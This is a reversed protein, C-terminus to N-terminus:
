FTLTYLRDNYARESMEGISSAGYFSKIAWLLWLQLFIQAIARSM